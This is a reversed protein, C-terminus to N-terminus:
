GNTKGGEEGKKFLIFFCCAKVGATIYLIEM